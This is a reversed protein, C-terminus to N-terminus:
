QKHAYYWRLINSLVALGSLSGIGYSMFHRYYLGCGGDGCLGNQPTENNCPSLSQIVFISGATAIKETFCMAGYVFAASTSNTGILEAIIALSQVFITSRGAGFIVGLFYIGVVQQNGLYNASIAGAIIFICGLTYIDRKGFLKSLPKMAFSVAFGTIFQLM